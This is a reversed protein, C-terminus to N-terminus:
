KNENGFSLIRYTCPHSISIIRSRLTFLFLYLSLSISFRHLLSPNSPTFVCVNFLVIFPACLKIQSMIHMCSKITTLRVSKLCKDFKYTAWTYSHTHTHTQHTNNKNKKSSIVFTGCCNASNTLTHVSSKPLSLFCYLLVSDGTCYCSVPCCCFFILSFLFRALSSGYGSMNLCM